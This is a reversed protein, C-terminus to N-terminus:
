SNAAKQAQKVAEPWAADPKLGGQQVRTIVNEVAVRVPGNKKGLYQPKLNEATAAYIQGTPANNMYEKKYDLVAPDKYLAPQSPLNGVTKFVEIQQEPQVMWKVFDAAADINKGQAPITWWSGGWNGGGGPIAAIDWKGKQEPATDQLHGLMWAPCAIVAFQDKKFGQDWNPQMSALNASIGAKIAKMSYDFAIKPGGDMQLQEKDDFYGVPQQSLIPNMLNTASDVFKKGTKATYNKGVNIFDDWTPWLKSVADRDTPLGAKKFLDNRYCMALGGVDTGLGIQKGDASMSEQWKWPLYKSQFDAGGKDMFNVFKDAQSRFQVIFGEDVASIDPAGSGAVLKKQLNEHQANYEGSNLVIKVNPHAAEYEAKLKDLGMDGWFAVKLTVTGSKDSGGELKQGSCGTIALTAVLGAAALRLGRKGLREM